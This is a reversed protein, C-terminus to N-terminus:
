GENYNKKAQEELREWSKLRNAEKEQKGSMTEEYEALCRDWLGKDMDIFMKRVNCTLGHVASNWHNRSNNELASFIIPLVTEKNQAIMSVVYDNNWLFLAREAVQFHDDEICKAIIDFIPGVLRKFANPPTLTIM